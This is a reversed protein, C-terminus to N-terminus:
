SAHEGEIGASPAAASVDLHITGKADDFRPTAEELSIANSPFVAVKGHLVYLKRPTLIQFAPCGLSSAAALALLILPILMTCCYTHRTMVINVPMEVYMYLKHPTLIYL